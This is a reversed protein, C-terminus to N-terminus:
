RVEVWFAVCIYAYDDKIRSQMEEFMTHAEQKFEILPNKQGYAQLFIGQQLMTMQNIHDEWQSDLVQLFIQKLFGFFIQVPIVSEKYEIVAKLRGILFDSIETRTKGDIDELTLIGPFTFTKQFSNVLGTLDWEEPYVDKPLFPNLFKKEVYETLFDYITALLKDLHMYRIEKRQKYILARQVNMVDDYQLLKKREDFHKEEINKQCQELRATLVSSQIPANGWSEDYSAFIKTLNGNAYLNFLDDEISIYFQTTGPHGQRGTRGRLQNDIRRSEHKDTGLVFLGGLIDVDPSTKIDTGRGAMNTAITVAGHEGAHSIIEAEAVDNKANLINHPIGEKRLLESIDESEQVSTTGVLIPQGSQHCYRVKELVALYKAEKTRFVYDMLDKRQSPLNTPIIAVPLGYISQFEEAETAATGTMGAIKKYLRFFNQLTISAVTKSEEKPRIGEKAELAQHLGDSFRRGPLTRGTFADVLLVSNDRVIYDKDREMVFCAKLMQDFVNALFAHQESFLESIHLQEEAKKIGDDLPFIIRRDKEDFKFDVGEKFNKVIDYMEFFPRSEGCTSKAIILPTRCEDILVSDIEDIIAYDLSSQVTKDEIKARNDRLYDFGLEHDTTYLIDKQYNEIREEHSSKSTILGVSLGMAEYLPQLQKMDREALYDNVTVIHVKKGRFANFVAPAVAALTKGEGTQMESIHGYELHLGGLMQVDYPSMGLVRFAMERVCAFTSTRVDSRKEKSSYHTWESLNKIKKSLEADSLSVLTKGKENIEALERRAKKRMPEKNLLKKKLSEFM